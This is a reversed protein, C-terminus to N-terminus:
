SIALMMHLMYICSYILPYVTFPENFGTINQVTLRKTMYHARDM